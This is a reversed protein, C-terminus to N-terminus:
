KKGGLIGALLDGAGKAVVGGLASKIAIEAMSAMDDSSSAGGFISNTLAHVSGGNQGLLTSAIGAIDGQAVNQGTTQAMMQTVIQSMDTKSITEDTGAAAATTSYPHQVFQGILDPNNGLYGMLQSAVSQIDM